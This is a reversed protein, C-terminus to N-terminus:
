REREKERKTHRKMETDRCRHVVIKEPKEDNRSRIGKKEQNEKKKKTERM